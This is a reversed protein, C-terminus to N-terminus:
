LVNFSAASFAFAPSVIWTLPSKEPFVATALFATILLATVNFIAPFVVKLPSPLLPIVNDSPAFIFASFFVKVILPNSVAM